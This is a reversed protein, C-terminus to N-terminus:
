ERGNNVKGPLKKVKTKRKPMEFLGTEVLLKVGGYKKVEEKSL